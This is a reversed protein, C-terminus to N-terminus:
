LDGVLWGALEGKSRKTPLANSSSQEQARHNSVDSDELRKKHKLQLSPTAKACFVRGAARIHYSPARCRLTGEYHQWTGKGTM